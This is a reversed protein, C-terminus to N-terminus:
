GTIKENLAQGSGLAVWFRNPFMEALTAAAQAIIAPHYRQGPACVVGFSLPIAQMAAGLWSWAFGSQNQRDSWPHFHDSCSINTFGAINAAQAYKLLESPKFQEHSAHYAFKAM